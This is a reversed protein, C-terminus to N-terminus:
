YWKYIYQRVQVDLLLTTLHLTVLHITSSTNDGSTSGPYRRRIPVFITDIRRCRRIPNDVFRSLNHYRNTSMSSDPHRGIQSDAFRDAHIDILMHLHLLVVGNVSIFRAVHPSQTICTCYQDERTLVSSENGGCYATVYEVGRATILFPLFAYMSCQATM